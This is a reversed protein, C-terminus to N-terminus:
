GYYPRMGVGAHCITNEHKTLAIQGPKFYFEEFVFGVILVCSPSHRAGAAARTRAVPVSASKTEPVPWTSGWRSSVGSDPINQIINFFTAYRTIISM